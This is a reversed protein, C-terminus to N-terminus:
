ILASSDSFLVQPSRAYRRINLGNFLKEVWRLRASLLLNLAFMAAGTLGFIQGLNATAVTFSSFRPMIAPAMLWLIIPIFSLTLILAWGYNNKKYNNM